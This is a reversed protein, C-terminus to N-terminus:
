WIAIWVTLQKHTEVEPANKQPLLPPPSPWKRPVCLCIPSSKDWILCNRRRSARPQPIRKLDEHERQNWCPTHVRPLWRVSNSTHIYWPRIKEYYTGLHLKPFLRGYKRSWSAFCRGFIEQTRSITTDSVIDTAIKTDCHVPTPPQPQVMKGVNLMKENVFLVRLEAEAASVAVSEFRWIWHM